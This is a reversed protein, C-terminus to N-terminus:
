SSINQVFMNMYINNEIIKKKEWLQITNILLRKLKTILKLQILNTLFFNKLANKLRGM